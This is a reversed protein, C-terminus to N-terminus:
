VLVLGKRETVKLYYERDAGGGKEDVGVVRIKRQQSLDIVMENASPDLSIGDIMYQQTKMIAEM